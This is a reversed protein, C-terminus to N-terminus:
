TRAISLTMVVESVMSRVDAPADGARTAIAVRARDDHPASATAPSDFDLRQKVTSNKERKAKNEGSKTAEGGNVLASRHSSVNTVREALEPARPTPAPPDADVKLAM